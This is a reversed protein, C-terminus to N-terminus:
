GNHFPSLSNARMLVNVEHQLSVPLESTELQADMVKLLCLTKLTPAASVFFSLFGTLTNKLLLAIIYLGHIYSFNSYLYTGMDLIFTDGKFESRITNSARGRGGFFHVRNNLEVCVMKSAGGPKFGSPFPLAAKWEGTV